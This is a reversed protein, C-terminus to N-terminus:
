LTEYWCAVIFFLCFFRLVFNSFLFSKSKQVLIIWVLPSICWCQILKHVVVVDSKKEM